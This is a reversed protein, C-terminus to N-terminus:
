QEPQSNQNGTGFFRLGNKGERKVEYLSEDAKRLLDTLNDADDPFLTAGISITAKLSLDQIEFPQRFIELIRNLTEEASARSHVNNLLIVFEDGGFRAVTDSLRIYRSVREAVAALLQDGIHHGLEDNVKKFDDLDFIAVAFKTWARSAQ